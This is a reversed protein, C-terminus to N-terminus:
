CLQAFPREPIMPCNKLDAGKGLSVKSSTPDPVDDREYGYCFLVFVVLLSVLM